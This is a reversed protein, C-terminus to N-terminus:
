LDCHDVLFIAFRVTKCVLLVHRGHWQGPSCEVPQYCRFPLSSSHRLFVHFSNPRWSFASFYPFEPNPTVESFSVTPLPFLSRWSILTSSSATEPSTTFLLSKEGTQSLGCKPERQVPRGRRGNRPSSSSRERGPHRRRWQELALLLLQYFFSVQSQLFDSSLCLFTRSFQLSWDSFFFALPIPKKFHSIYLLPLLYATLLTFLSVQLSLLIYSEFYPHALCCSGLLFVGM